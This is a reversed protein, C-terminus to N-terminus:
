GLLVAKAKDIHAIAALARNLAPDNDPDKLEARVGLLDAIRRVAEEKSVGTMGLIREPTIDEPFIVEVGLWEAQERIMERRDEAPLMDRMIGALRQAIARDMGESMANERDHQAPEAPM